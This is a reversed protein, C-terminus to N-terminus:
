FFHFPRVGESLVWGVAPEVEPSLKIPEFKSLSSRCLEATLLPLPFSRQLARTHTGYSKGSHWSVRTVRGCTETGNEDNVLAGRFQKFNALCSKSTMSLEESAKRYM